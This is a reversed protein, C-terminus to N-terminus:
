MELADLRQPVRVTQQVILVPTERRPLSDSWEAGDLASTLFVHLQVEMGGYKMMAHYNFM